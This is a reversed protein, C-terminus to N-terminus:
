KNMIYEYVREYDSGLLKKFNDNSTLIRLADNKDYMSLYSVMYNYKANELQKRYGEYGKSNLDIVGDKWDQKANEYKIKYEAELKDINNNFEIVDDVAKKYENKSDELRDELEEAYEIDLNKLANDRNNILTEIDKEIDDVRKNISNMNELLENARDSEVKSLQSIVISSRALGRKVAQSEVALGKADYIENIASENEAKIKSLNDKEDTLKKNQKEFDTELEEAKVIKDDTLIKILKDKVEKENYKPMEKKVLGLSEPAEYFDLMEIKEDLERLKEEPNDTVDAINDKINSINSTNQNKNTVNNTVVNNDKKQTLENGQIEKAVITKPTSSKKRDEEDKKKLKQNIEDKINILYSM